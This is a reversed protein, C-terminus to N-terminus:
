HSQLRLSFRTCGPFQITGTFIAGGDNSFGTMPVMAYYPPRKLWNSPTLRLIGLVPNITGHMFYVGQPHAASGHHPPWFIFAAQQHNPHNPQTLIKLDLETLGQACVYSGVYNRVPNPTPSQAQAAPTIAAPALTFLLAALRLSFHTPGPQTPPLL